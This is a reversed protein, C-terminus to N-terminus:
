IHWLCYYKKSWLVEFSIFSNILLFASALGVVGRGFSVV